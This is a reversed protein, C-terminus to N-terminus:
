LGVVVVVSIPADMQSIAKVVAAVDADDHIKQALADEVKELAVAEHRKRIAM